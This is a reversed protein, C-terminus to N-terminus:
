CPSGAPVTPTCTSSWRTGEVTTRLYPLVNDDAHAIVQQEDGRTFTVDVSSAVRIASFTPVEPFKGDV